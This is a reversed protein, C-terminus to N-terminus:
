RRRRGAILGAVAFIVVAGPAPVASGSIRFVLFEGHNAGPVLPNGGGTAPAWIWQASPDIAPFVIWPSTFGTQNIRGGTASPTWLNNLTAYAIAADTQAQTPQVNAPWAGSMGFLPMLWDGARFVEFQPDGTLITNGTTTNTFQGLFGQAVARDSSTTVYLYDTPARGTVSYTEMTSWVTDGGVHTNTATSTGFWIDYQNDVTIMMQWDDALALSPLALASAAVILRLNTM